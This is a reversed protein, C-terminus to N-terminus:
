LIFLLSSGLPLREELALIHCTLNELCDIAKCLQNPRLEKSWSTKASFKAESIDLKTRIM